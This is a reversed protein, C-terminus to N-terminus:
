RPEGARLQEIERDKVRLEAVLELIRDLRQRSVEQARDRDEEAVALCRQLEDVDAQSKVEKIMNM